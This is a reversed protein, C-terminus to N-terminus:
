IRKRHSERKNKSKNRQEHREESRHEEIQRTKEEIRGKPEDVKRRIRDVTGVVGKEMANFEKM